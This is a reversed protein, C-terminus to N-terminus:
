KGKRKVIMALGYGAASGLVTGVVIKWAMETTSPWLTGMGPCECGGLGYQVAPNTDHTAQNMLITAYTNPNLM